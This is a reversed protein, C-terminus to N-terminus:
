APGGSRCPSTVIEARQGLTPCLVWGQARGNWDRRSLWLPTSKKTIAEFGLTLARFEKGEPSQWDSGRRSLRVPWFTMHGM